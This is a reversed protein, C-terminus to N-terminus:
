PHFSEALTGSGVRKCMAPSDGGFAFSSVTYDLRDSSPLPRETSAQCIIPPQLPWGPVPSTPRWAPQLVPEPQQPGYHYYHHITAPRAELEAIKDLLEKTKV